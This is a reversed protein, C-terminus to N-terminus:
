TCTLTWFIKRILSANRSKTGNTCDLFLSFRGHLLKVKLLNPLKYLRYWITCRVEYKIRFVQCFNPVHEIKQFCHLNLYWRKFVDLIKGHDRYDREQQALVCTWRWNKQLDIKHIKLFNKCRMLCANRFNKSLECFFCGHCLRIKTFNCAKVSAAM